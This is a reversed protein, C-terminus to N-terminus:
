WRGTLEWWTEPEALIRRVAGRREMRMLNARACDGIHRRLRADVELGKTAIAYEVIGALAIPKGAVRLADLTLRSLERYGFFLGRLLPRIAPIMEPNCDPEFIRIAADITALRERLPEIAREAKEIEGALRARRRRLAHMAYSHGPM